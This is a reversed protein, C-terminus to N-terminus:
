NYLYYTVIVVSTTSYVLDGQVARQGTGTSGQNFCGTISNVRFSFTISCILLEISDSGSLM